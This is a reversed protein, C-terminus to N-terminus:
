QDPKARELPMFSAYNCIPELFFDPRCGAFPAIEDLVTGLPPVFINATKIKGSVIQSRQALATVCNLARHQAFNACSIQWRNKPARPLKLRTVEAAV